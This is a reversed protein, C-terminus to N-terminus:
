ACLSLLFSPHPLLIREDFLLTQAGTSLNTRKGVSKGFHTRFRLRYDRGVMIQVLSMAGRLLPNDFCYHLACLRFPVGDRLMHAKAVVDAYQADHKALGINYLVDVIGYKQTNEDQLAVM